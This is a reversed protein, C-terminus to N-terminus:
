VIITRESCRRRSRTPYDGQIYPAVPPDVTVRETTGSSQGVPLDVPFAEVHLNIRQEEVTTQYRDGLDVELKKKLEFYSSTLLNFHDQLDSIQKSKVKKDKKLEALQGGLSSKDSQLKSVQIRLDVNEARLEAM